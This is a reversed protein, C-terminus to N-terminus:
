RHPSPFTNGIDQPNGALEDHVDVSSMIRLGGSPKPYPMHTLVNPGSSLGSQIAEITAPPDTLLDEYDLYDRLVRGDSGAQQAKIARTLTNTDFATREKTTLQLRQFRRLQPLPLM